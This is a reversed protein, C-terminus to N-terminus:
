RKGLQIRRLWAFFRLSRYMKHEILYLMLKRQWNLGFRNAKKLAEQILQNQLLENYWQKQEKFSMTNIPNFCGQIAITIIVYLVRNLLNVRYSSNVKHTRGFDDLYELGHIIEYNYDLNPVHTISEKNYVYNYFPEHIYYASECKEFLLVNFIFGEIGTRFIPVFRIDHKRILELKILKSTPTGVWGNFDLFRAQLERCEKNTHFFEPNGGCKPTPKKSDKYVLKQDFLVVDVNKEKQINSIIECTEQELYDDGDLFMLFEGTASDIGCNRASTVGGNEKHIVKIRRDEAAYEDCIQGNNDPSGDDILIIEIDQLTQKMCSEVCQRLLQEPIRYIPVIISVRAKKNM